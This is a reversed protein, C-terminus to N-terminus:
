QVLFQTYVLLLSVPPQPMKLSTHLITVKVAKMRWGWEPM